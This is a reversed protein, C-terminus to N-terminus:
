NHYKLITAKCCGFILMCEQVSKTRRLTKIAKQIDPAIEPAGRYRREMSRVPVANFGLKSVDSIVQKVKESLSLEPHNCYLRSAIIVADLKDMM